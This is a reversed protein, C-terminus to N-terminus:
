TNVAQQEKVFKLVATRIATLVRVSNFPKVIFGKVGHEVASRVAAENLSNSMIFLMTKPLDHRLSDLLAMGDGEAQALDICILQPRLKVIHAVSSPTINSDGVVCHGGTVLVTSLLGRSIANGDIIAVKLM